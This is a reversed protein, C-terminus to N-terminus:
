NVTLNTQGIIGNLTGSIVTTGSNSPTAVGLSNIIAVTLDSSTWAVFPTLDQTSGDDFHGIATFAQSDGLNIIPNAPTVTISTLNASSVVLSAVGVTLGFRATLTTTGASLGTVEGCVRNAADDVPPVNSPADDCSDHASPSTITAIAPASSTWHAFTTLDQTTADLLTGIASCVGSTSQAIQPCTIAISALKSATVQLSSPASTIAGLSATIDTTGSAVATVLGSVPDITAVTPDSSTWTVANALSQTSLDSYSGTATYQLIAEPLIVSSPAAISISQLTTTRVTLPTSGSVQPVGPSSFSSKITAIGPDGAIALGVNDITAVPLNDSAWIGASTLNQTTADSFTGISTFEQRAGPAVSLSGPSVSIAQITADSVTLSTFATVPGFTVSITVPTTSPVIANALGDEIDAVTPDSSSWSILPFSNVIATSGDDYTAVATYQLNTRNAITTHVPQIKLSVVNASRVTVDTNGALGTSASTATITADGAVKATVLGSTGISAVFPESSTWDVLNTLDSTTHDTFTGTATYQQLTGVPISALDPTVAISTLEAQTIKLSAAGIITGLAAHVLTAGVGTGTALGSSDITAVAPTVSSWTALGTIDPTTNDSYTGTATFQQTLGLAISPSGPTVAISLLQLVVTLATTGTLSDFKASITTAGAGVSTALGTTSITAVTASSSSWTVRPTLDSTSGDAFHGTAHFQVTSPAGPPMLTLNPANPTIEISQLAPAVTLDTTGSVSNISATITTSGTGTSTALGGGSITAVTTSSSSWTVQTTVDKTSGDSFHGNAKFQETSPPGSPDFEVVPDPPTLGISQLTGLQHGSGTSSGGGCGLLLALGAFAVSVLLKKM